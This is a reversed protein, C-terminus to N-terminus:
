PGWSRSDVWPTLWCPFGLDSKGKVVGEYCEDAKTLSGAPYYKIKVRGNTRIEVEKCWSDALQSQVHSPPFFNSYTLQITQAQVERTLFIIFASLMCVGMFVLCFKKVM